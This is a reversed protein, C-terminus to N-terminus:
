LVFMAGCDLLFARIGWMVLMEGDWGKVVVADGRVFDGSNRVVCGLLEASERLM